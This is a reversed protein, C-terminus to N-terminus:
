YAERKTAIDDKEVLEKSLAMMRLTQAFTKVTAVTLTREKKKGILDFFGEKEDYKVNSLSRLPATIKPQKKKLISQYIGNAIEKIQKGVTM